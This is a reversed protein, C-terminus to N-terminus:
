LNKAAGIATGIFSGTPRATALAPGYQLLFSTLPDDLGSPEKQRPMRERFASMEEATPIIKNIYDMATQGGVGMM